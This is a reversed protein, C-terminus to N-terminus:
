LRAELHTFARVKSVFIEWECGEICKAQCRVKDNKVFHIGFRNLLSWERIAGKFEKVSSFEM